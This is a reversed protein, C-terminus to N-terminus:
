SLAGIEGKKAELEMTMGEKRAEDREKEVERGWL